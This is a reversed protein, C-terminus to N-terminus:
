HRIEANVKGSSFLLSVQGSATPFNHFVKLCAIVCGDHPVVVREESTHMQEELAVRLKSVADIQGAPQLM